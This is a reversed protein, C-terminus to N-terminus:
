RHNVAINRRGPEHYMLPRRDIAVNANAWELASSAGAMRHSRDLATSGAANGVARTATHQDIAEALAGYTAATGPPIQLLAGWVKIPFNTEELLLTIPERRGAASLFIRNVYSAAAARHTPRRAM